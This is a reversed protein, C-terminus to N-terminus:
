RRATIAPALEIGARELRVKIREVRLLTLADISRDALDTGMALPKQVRQVDASVM